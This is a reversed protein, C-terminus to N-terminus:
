DSISAILVALNASIKKLIIPASKNPYVIIPNIIRILKKTIEPYRIKSPVILYNNYQLTCGSCERFIINKDKRIKEIFKNAYEITTIGITHDPTIIMKIHNHEYIANNLNKVNIELISLIKITLPIMLKGLFEDKKYNDLMIIINKFYEEIEIKIINHYNENYGMTKRITEIIENLAHEDKELIKEAFMNIIETRKMLNNLERLIELIEDNNIKGYITNVLENFITDVESNIMNINYKEKLEKKFIHLADLINYDSIRLSNRVLRIIEDYPLKIKEYINEQQIM